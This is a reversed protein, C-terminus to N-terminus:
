FRYNFSLVTQYTAAKYSGAFSDPNGDEDIDELASVEADPHHTYGTILGLDWQEIHLQFGGSLSYKTGLDMFLPTFQEVDGAPSQDVSFGGMLTLLESYEYNAGAMVKATNSWDVPTAVDATFFSKMDAATDAPGTLGQHNSYKFSFGDFQSWFTYEADVALTLKETTQYALGVAISPPLKLKAEFDASDTVLSGATFLNEVTGMFFYPPVVELKPMHFTLASRGSVTFDLPLAATAALALKESQKLLMGVRFGFGWGYGDNGVWETIKRNPNDAFQWDPDRLLYPNDRFVLSTHLLDGRLVQLGVGLFLKEEIFERAATLQFSVVDFNNQYQNNPLYLSDNYALDHEYLTWTVNYDFPQYASLGFVTEGWVPLRVIFGASPNSLVEHYNYNPIDNFFGPESLENWRYDPTIENRYHVFAFNGGLQNDFVDAYGAPNYYAATWDNAVARFAGGMATAKTGVGLSEFGGALPGPSLMALVTVVAASIRIIGMRIEM